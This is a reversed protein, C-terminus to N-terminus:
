PTKRELAARVFCDKAELLKRLGASTEAGGGVAAMNRALDSFPKSIRALPEPLHDYRFYRLTPYAAELGDPNRAMAPKDPLVAGPATKGTAGSEEGGNNYWKSRRTVGQDWAALCSMLFSALVMDPTDSGRELGHRNILARLEKEFETVM